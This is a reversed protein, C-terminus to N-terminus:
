DEPKDELGLGKLFGGIGEFLAPIQDLFGNIADTASQLGSKAVLGVYKGIAATIQKREETSFSDRKQQFEEVLKEFQTNAKNWDEESFSPAKKEVQDVFADIRKPLSEKCSTMMLASVAMIFILVFFRKM